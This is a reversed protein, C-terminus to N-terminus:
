TLKSNEGELFQHHFTWIPLKDGSNLYNVPYVTDTFLCCSFLNQFNKCVIKSTSFLRFYISLPVIQIPEKNGEQNM